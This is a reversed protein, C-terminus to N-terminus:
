GRWLEHELLVSVSFKQGSTPTFGSPTLLAGYMRNGPLTVPLSHGFWPQSSHANVNVPAEPALLMGTLYGDAYSPLVGAANDVGPAYPSAALILMGGSPDWAQDSIVQAGIISVRNSPMEFTLLSSGGGTPGIVDGGTYATINGPRTFEVTSRFRM